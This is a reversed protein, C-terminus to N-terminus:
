FKLSGSLLVPGKCLEKGMLQRQRGPDALVEAVRAPSSISSHTPSKQEMKHYTIIAYYNHPLTKLMQFKMSFYKYTFCFM